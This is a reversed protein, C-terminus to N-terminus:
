VSVNVTIAIEVHVFVVGSGNVTMLPLLGSTIFVCDYVRM